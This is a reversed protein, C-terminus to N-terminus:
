TAVGCVGKWVGTSQDAAPVAPAPRLPEDLMVHAPEFGQWTPLRRMSRMRWSGAWLRFGFGLLVQGFDVGMCVTEFLDTNPVLPLSTTLRTQKPSMAHKTLAHTRSLEHTSHLCAGAVLSCRPACMVLLLLAFPVFRPLLAGQHCSEREFGSHVDKWKHAPRDGKRCRSALFGYHTPTRILPRRLLRFDRSFSESFSVRHADFTCFARLIAAHM